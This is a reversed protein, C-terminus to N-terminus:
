PHLKNSSNLIVKILDGDASAASAAIGLIQAGTTSAIVKGTANATVTAGVSVAAGAEMEVLAGSGTRAVTIPQTAAVTATVTKLTAGPVVLSAAGSTGVHKVRLEGGVAVFQVFRGKTVSATTTSTPDTYRLDQAHPPVASGADETNIGPFYTM